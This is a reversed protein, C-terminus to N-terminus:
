QATSPICATRTIAISNKESSASFALLRVVTRMQTATRTGQPASNQNRTLARARIWIGSRRERQAGLGPPVAERHHLPHPEAVEVGHLVHVVHLEQAEELGRPDVPEAVREGPVCGAAAPGEPEDERLAVDRVARRREEPVLDAGPYPRQLHLPRTEPQAELHPDLGVIAQDRVAPAREDSVVVAGPLWARQWVLDAVPDCRQKSLRAPPM